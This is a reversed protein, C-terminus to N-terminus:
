VACHIEDAAASCSEIFVSIQGHQCQLVLDAHLPALGPLLGKGADPFVPSQWGFLSTMPQLGRTTEPEDRRNLKVACRLQTTCAVQYLRQCNKTIRTTFAKQRRKLIRSDLREVCSRASALNQTRDYTHIRPGFCNLPLDLFFSFPSSCTVLKPTLSQNGKRGAARQQMGSCTM